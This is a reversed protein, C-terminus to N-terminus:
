ACDKLINGAIEIEARLLSESTHGLALAYYKMALVAKAHTLVARAKRYQELLALYSHDANM